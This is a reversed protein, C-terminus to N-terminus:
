DRLGAWSAVQSGFLPTMPYSVADGVNPSVTLRTADPEVYLSETAAVFDLKSEARRQLETALDVLNKGTKM